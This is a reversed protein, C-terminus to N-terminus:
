RKGLEIVISGDPALLERFLPGFSTLWQLYEEGQLNGYKKKTNLPFPPSTFILQVRGRIADLDQQKLVDEALGHLMLGRDTTYATSAPFNPLVAVPRNNANLPYEKQILRFKIKKNTGFKGIVAERSKKVDDRVAHLM